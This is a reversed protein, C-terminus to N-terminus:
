VFTDNSAWAVKAPMRKDFPMVFIWGKEVCKFISQARAAHFGKWELQNMWQYSGDDNKKAEEYQEQAIGAAERIGQLIREKADEEDKAFIMASVFICGPETIQVVFPEGDPDGVLVDQGSYTNFPNTQSPWRTRHDADLEEPTMEWRPKHNM